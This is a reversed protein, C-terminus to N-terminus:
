VRSKWVKKLILLVIDWEGVRERKQLELRGGPPNKKEEVVSSLDERDGFYRRLEVERRDKM